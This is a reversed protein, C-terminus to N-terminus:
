FGYVYQFFVYGPSSHTVCCSINGSISSSAGLYVSHAVVKHSWYKFLNACRGKEKGCSNSPWIRLCQLQTRSVHAISQQAYLLSSFLCKLTKCQSNTYLLQRLQTYRGKWYKYHNNKQLRVWLKRKFYICSHVSTSLFKLLTQESSKFIPDGQPIAFSPKLGQGIFFYIAKWMWLLLFCCSTVVWVVSIMTCSTPCNPWSNVDSYDSYLDYCLLPFNEMGGLEKVWQNSNCIHSNEWCFHILVMHLSLYEPWLLMPFCLAFLLDNPGKM